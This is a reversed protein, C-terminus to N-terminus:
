GIARPWDKDPCHLYPTADCTTGAFRFPQDQAAQQTTSATGTFAVAIGVLALLRILNLSKKM